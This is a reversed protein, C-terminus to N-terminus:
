GLLERLRDLVAPWKNSGLQNEVIRGDKLLLFRPTGSKRPVQELVSRLGGEWYRAQYADRLHPPDIETWTVRRFEPSDRWAAEYKNRWLTCYPCDRGGVYIVDVKSEARPPAGLSVAIGAGVGAFLLDRRKM